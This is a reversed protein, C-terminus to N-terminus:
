KIAESSIKLRFIEGSISYRTAGMGFLLDNASIVAIMFTNRTILSPPATPTQGSPFRVIEPPCHSIPSAIALSALLKFTGSTIWLTQPPYPVSGRQPCPTRFPRIRPNTRRTTEASSSAARETSSTKVIILFSNVTSSVCDPM